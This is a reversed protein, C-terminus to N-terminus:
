NEVSDGKLTGQTAEKVVVEVLDGVKYNKKPFVVVKNQSTRGYLEEKSKKSTGEVLVEFTKGIDRQNNEFSLQNQLEIIEQLRRGKIEEPIDDKLHESAYTGPRESYKFMFASDYSAWRMLSLTEQHDEETESHFGCFVDTSLGCEPLIRKIAEIRGMYWERDYKRKMLKLIRSSGSQLPLHIHRCINPHKAMVMLTDDSMDKPHSTSFRIRMQPFHTAVFDLLQSFNLSDSENSNFHYSNVNQGLLTVEKFGKDHLDQIEKKISEPQRSRERGRTYPVICYSCFNNCGRMISVFGSIRNKSLRSPIIESYTENTSLEVNIAKDGREAMGILNSLDLYADPGVVINAGEEFLKDKVREAMCGIIGIILRPKSKRMATLQKLRGLVRQEANDRISCTNIFIADAEDMDYTVGYGDMEMVSAVVESDAVNMQCGYTEIFLKKGGKKGILPKVDSFEMM